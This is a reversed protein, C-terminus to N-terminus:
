VYRLLALTPSHSTIDNPPRTNTTLHTTINCEHWLMDRFYLLYITFSLKTNSSRFVFLSASIPYEELFLNWRSSDDHGTVMTWTFHMNIYLPRPTIVQCAVLPTFIYSITIVLIVGRHCIVWEPRSQLPHMDTHERTSFRSWSTSGKWKLGYIAM